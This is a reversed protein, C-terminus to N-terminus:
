IVAALRSKVTVKPTKPTTENGRGIFQLDRAFGEPFNRSIPERRSITVHSSIRIM